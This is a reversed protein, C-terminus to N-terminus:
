QGTHNAMYRVDWTDTRTDQDWSCTGEDTLAAVQQTGPIMDPGGSDGSCTNGTGYRLYLWKDDHGTVRETASRRQNRYPDGFGVATLSSHWTSHGIWPLYAAPWRPPHTLVIVALDHAHTSPSYAWHRYARGWHVYSSPTYQRGFYVKMLAGPTAPVCHADTLVVRRGNPAALYVGSCATSFHRPYILAVVYPHNGYDYSGGTVAGGPGAAAVVATLAVALPLALRGALFRHM